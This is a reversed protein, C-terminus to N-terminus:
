DLLRVAHEGSGFRRNAFLGENEFPKGVKEVRVKLDVVPFGDPLSVIDSIAPTM